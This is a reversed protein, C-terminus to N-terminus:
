VTMHIALRFCVQLLLIHNNYRNGEGKIFLLQLTVVFFGAFTILYIKCSRGTASLCLNCDKQCSGLSHQTDLIGQFYMGECYQSMEQSPTSLMIGFRSPLIMTDSKATLFNPILYISYKYPCLVLFNESLCFGM